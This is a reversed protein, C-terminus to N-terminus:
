FGHKCKFSLVNYSLSCSVYSHSVKPPSSGLYDKTIASDTFVEVLSKFFQVGLVDWKIDLLISPSSEDLYHFM